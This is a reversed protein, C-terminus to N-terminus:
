PSSPDVTEQLTGAAIHWQQATKVFEPPIPRIAKTKENWNQLVSLHHTNDEPLGLAKAIRWISGLLGFLTRYGSPYGPVEDFLIAPRPSKGEGCVLEVLSGMELDWDAGDIRKLEGHNEVAELYDRLDVYMMYKDKEM